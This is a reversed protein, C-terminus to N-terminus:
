HSPAPEANLKWKILVSAGLQYHGYASIVHGDPLAVAGIHGCLAPGWSGDARLFDFSDLEYRRDLNWTKGHDKSILADCGRRYSVPKGDQIDNRVVLTCVLNGNPVRQLNAHHRGAKFLFYLDTWTQGDDRSISIATGCLNDNPPGDLYQPPEGTRLAAVLDGNAARVIAGEHVGRLWKKGNHEVTFKWQPPAVEDIWTRGGDVSRRFVGPSDDKPHSKGPTYHHGLELIERARGQEDRDVWANGESYFTMGDKTPPNVISEPWTRGFDNSFWRLDTVFSLRGKGHDTLNIPRGSDGAIVKFDTWTAGDDKSFAIIPEITGAGKPPEKERSCMIAIEGNDMQVMGFPMTYTSDPYKLVQRQAPRMVWGGQGDGQRICHKQWEGRAGNREPACLALTCALILMRWTIDM